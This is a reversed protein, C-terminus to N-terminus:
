HTDTWARMVEPPWPRLEHGRPMFYMNKEDVRLYKGAVVYENGAFYDLIQQRVEPHAEICVLGPRFRRVDFGALVRPEALEVDISVFDVRAIHHRDLLETLTITPVQLVKSQGWRETFARAISAVLPHEESVHLPVSEGSRDSAFYRVFVSRPRHRRWGEAFQPQPEVALGSWGLTKELHYTNSHLKYDFAGVDLFIGGRRDEFFDRVIWEEYHESQTEPGYTKRLWDAEGLRVARPDPPPEVPLTRQIAPAYVGLLTAISVLV